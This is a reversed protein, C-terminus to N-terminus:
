NIGRILKWAIFPQATFHTQRIDLVVTSRIYLSNNFIHFRYLFSVCSFSFRVIKLVYGLFFIQGVKLLKKEGFKKGRLM